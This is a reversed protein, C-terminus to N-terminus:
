AKTLQLGVVALEVGECTFMVLAAQTGHQM